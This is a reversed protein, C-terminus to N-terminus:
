FPHTPGNSQSLRWCISTSLKNTVHLKSQRVYLLCDFLPRTYCNRHSPHPVLVMSDREILGMFIYVARNTRRGMAVFNRRKMKEQVCFYSKPDAAQSVTSDSSPAPSAVTIDIGLLKLNFRWADKDLMPDFMVSVDLPRLRSFKPVANPPEREVMVDSCTLKALM